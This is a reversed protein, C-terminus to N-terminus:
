NDIYTLRSIIGCTPPNTNEDSVLMGYIGGKQVDTSNVGNYRIHHNLYKFTKLYVSPRQADLNYVRDFLIKFRGVTAKNLFASVSATEYVDTMAPATDGVQQLDQVVVYRVRTFNASSDIRANIHHSLNICKVSNGTRTGEADGTALASLHVVTPTTGQTGAIVTTDLKQKEVNVFKKLWRYGRYAIRAM